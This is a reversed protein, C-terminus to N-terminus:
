CPAYIEDFLVGRAVRTVPGTLCIHDDDGIEVALEGGPMSVTVSQDCLGLRHAVAAVACSSSGSALTYGAGREWIEIKLHSRDIVQVFQVNTRQPFRAHTEILPGFARAEDASTGSRFIVCHPNGISVASYVLDHSGIHLRQQLAIFQAQGMDVRVIRGGDLICCMVRGGKTMVEFPQVGVEGQDWLYRAFIRLGNGSKEAESGDANFIRLGFGDHRDRVFIGDAGIGRHRDCIRQIREPTLHDPSDELVLYDNGLAHYKWFPWGCLPDHAM